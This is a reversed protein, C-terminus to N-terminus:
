EEFEFVEKGNYHGCKPCVRHPQKTEQCNPCTSLSPSKLADHSRQSKRVSNSRKGRPVAM